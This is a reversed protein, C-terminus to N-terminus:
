RLLGARRAAKQMVGDLMPETLRGTFTNQQSVHYSGVLWRGGPLEVEVGHSFKPKPKLGFHKVVAEFGFGGLAVYV